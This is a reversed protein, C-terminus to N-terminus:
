SLFIIDKTLPQKKTIAGWNKKLFTKQQQDSGLQPHWTYLKEDMGTM